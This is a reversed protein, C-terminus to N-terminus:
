GQVALIFLHESHFGKIAGYLFLIMQLVLSLLGQSQATYM